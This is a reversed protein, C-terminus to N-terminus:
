TDRHGLIIVSSLMHNNLSCMTSVNYVTAVIDHITYIYMCMSSVYVGGVRRYFIPIPFVPYETAIIDM